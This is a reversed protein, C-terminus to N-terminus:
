DHDEDEEDANITNNQSITESEKVLGVIELSEEEV